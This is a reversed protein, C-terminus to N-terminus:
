GLLHDHFGGEHKTGGIQFLRERKYWFREFFERFNPNTKKKLPHYKKTM